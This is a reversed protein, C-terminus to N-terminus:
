MSSAARSAKARLGEEQENSDAVKEFAAKWFAWRQPSLVSSGSFQASALSTHESLSSEGTECLHLLRSGSYKIWEAAASVRSSLIDERSLSVDNTEFSDRLTWIGFYYWDMLGAGYLRSVMSNLNVWEQLPEFTDEKDSPAIWSEQVCNELGELSTWIVRDSEVDSTPLEKLEAVLQVLRDQAPHDHPVQRAIRLFLEWFELLFSVYSEAEEAEQLVRNAPALAGLEKAAELPDPQDKAQIFASIINYANQSIYWPDDDRLSLSLHEAM